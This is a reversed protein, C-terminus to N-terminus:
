PSPEGKLAAILADAYKVAKAAHAAPNDANCPALTALFQGAFYARHSMGNHTVEGMSGHSPFAPGGDDADTM